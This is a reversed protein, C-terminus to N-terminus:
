MMALIVITANDQGSIKQEIINSIIQNAADNPKLNQAFITEMALESISNYVGDSCLIIKDGSYLKISKENFAIERFGDNGLYSTLRKKKPNNVFEAKTIKGSHYQEELLSQFNHKKNLDSLEGHRYIMIASDGVSVWDLQRGTVIVAALTSGTKNARGMKLIKNNCLKATTQLFQPIGRPAEKKFEEVFTKVVTESALKGDSYGGMGDALVVLAGEQNTVTAFSDEQATRKGKTQANGILVKPKQFSSNLFRRIKVLFILGIGFLGLVLYPNEMIHRRM